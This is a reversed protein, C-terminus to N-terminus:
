MNVLPTYFIHDPKIFRACHNYLGEISYGLRQLRIDIHFEGSLYDICNLKNSNLLIEYEGGECDIKLLKCKSINNTDMFNDLITSAVTYYSYDPLRTEPLPLESLGGGGTNSHAVTMGANRGDKTVAQNYAIINSINNITINEQLNCYNDYSPEFTFIQVFPYKKALYISVMGVHGGIDLIVDNSEFPINEINYSNLTLEKAVIDSTISSQHDYIKLAIGNILYNRCMIPFEPSM